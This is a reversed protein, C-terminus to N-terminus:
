GAAEQLRLPVEAALQAHLLVAAGSDQLMYNLRESPYAPGLPVYAGGAKLTALVGLMMEIGREACIAVRVEPGVGLKRLYHAPQNARENLEAYTLQDENGIVALAAPTRTVQAEFLEHLCNGAPYSKDTDNWRLLQEREARSMLSLQAIRRDPNNVVDELLIQFHRLMRAITSADFLDTSYEAVVVLGDPGEMLDLSLDFQTTEKPMLVPEVVLDGLSGEGMPANGLQFMVQFLPHRSM